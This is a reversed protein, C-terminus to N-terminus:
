PACYVWAEARSKLVVKKRAYADTEYEDFIILEKEQLELVLGDISEGEKRKAIFYSRGEIEVGERTFGELVDPVGFVIRGLLRLQVSIDGLTGYVFLRDM